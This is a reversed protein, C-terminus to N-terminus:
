CAYDPDIGYPSPLNGPTEQLLWPVGGAFLDNGKDGSYHASGACWSALVTPSPLGSETYPPSTWPAGAIWLPLQPGSPVYTGAIKPYQLSTSYIGVTAGQSRLADIAGQITRDNLTTSSSWYQGANFNSYQGPALSANEIDLWWLPSAVGQTSADTYANAAGNYGYNYARCPAQASAVLTACTGAPGTASQTAANANKGPSNMFIYLSVPNEPAAALAWAVEAALCSNVSSDLWGVVQVVAFGTQAPLKAMASASGPKACQFDSIDAGFSGHLYPDGTLPPVPPPLTTTPPSPPTTTTTPPPAPPLAAVLLVAVRVPPKPPTKALSGSFHADGFQYFRGTQGVLYYGGGDPTAGFGAIPAALRVHVASGHFPADGFQRVSGDAYALWYGRGDPTAAVGIIPSGHPGPGGGYARVDGYAYVDGGTSWVWYGNGDPSDVIGGIHGRPTEHVPSGCFPANGYHQVSGTTTVVLFGAGDPTAAIGVWTGSHHLHIPTGWDVASGFNFVNGAATLLWYGGGGPEEAAAVVATRAM